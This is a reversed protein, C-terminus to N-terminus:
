EAEKNGNEEGGNSKVAEALSGEICKMRERFAEWKDQVAYMGGSLAREWSNDDVDIKIDAFSRSLLNVEGSFLFFSLACSLTKQSCTIVDFMSADKCLEIKEEELIKGLRKAFDVSLKLYEFESKEITIVGNINEEM